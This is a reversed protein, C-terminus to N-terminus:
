SFQSQVTSKNWRLLGEVALILYASFMLAMGWMHFWMMVGLALCNSLIWLKFGAPNKRNILLNGPLGLLATLLQLADIANM